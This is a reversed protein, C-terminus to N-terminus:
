RGVRGDVKVGQALKATIVCLGQSSRPISLCGWVRGEMEGEMERERGRWRRRGRGESEGDREGETIHSLRTTGAM